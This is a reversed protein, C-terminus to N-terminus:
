SLHSPDQCLIFLAHVIWITTQAYIQVLLLQIFEYNSVGLTSNIKSHPTVLTDLLRATDFEEM